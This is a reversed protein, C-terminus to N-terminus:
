IYWEHSNRNKNETKCPNPVKKLLKQTFCATSFSNQNRSLFFVWSRYLDMQVREVNLERGLDLVYLSHFRAGLNPVVSSRTTQNSPFSCFGCAHWFIDENKQGRRNISDKEHKHPYQFVFECGERSRWGDIGVSSKFTKSVVFIM